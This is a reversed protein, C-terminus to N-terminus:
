PLSIHPIFLTNIHPFHFPLPNLHSILPRVLTPTSSPLILYSPSIFFYKNLVQSPPSSFSLPLPLLQLVSLNQKLDSRGKQTMRDTEERGILPVSHALPTRNIM